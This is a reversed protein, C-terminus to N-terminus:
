YVREPSAAPPSATGTPLSVPPPVLCDFSPLFYQPASLTAATCAFFIQRTEPTVTVKFRRLFDIGLIPGAVAAHLIQSSFLNDQFLVTKQIFGCSPIPQGDAGKLLPGSPTTKSNCPVTSLTVGTDVLYRDCPLENTLFHTRCKSPFAHCHRTTINGSVQYPDLPKKTKRGLVPLFVGSPGTPTTTTFNVCAMALITFLISTQGPLLAVKPIPM